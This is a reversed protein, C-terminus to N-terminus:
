ACPAAGFESLANEVLDILSLQSATAIRVREGRQRKPVRTDRQYISSPIDSHRLLLFSVFINETLRQTKTRTHSVPTNSASLILLHGGSPSSTQAGGAVHPGGPAAQTIPAM